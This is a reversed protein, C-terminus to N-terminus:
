ARRLEPTPDDLAVKIEFHRGFFGGTVGGLDKVHGHYKRNPVAIITIAVKDGVAVHGRDLEDMKGGLEWDSFNPIEAIAMGPHVTDGMQYEPLVMGDTLMMPSITKLAVYGAHHARVTMAEINERATKIQAEAKAKGADQIAIGADSTAQRNAVNKELQALHDRASALALDNQKAVIAPLLPNKRVDLEALTVDSKAKKLAYADEEKDADRQAAAQLVHQEAEALDAEAEKLKFVQESTNLQVVIDGAKAQDGSTRLFTIHMDGTGIMPATLTEPNGGRLDAKATISLSLDGRKVKATPMTAAPAATLSRYARVGYFVAAGSAMVLGLSLVLRGAPNKTRRRAPLVRSPVPQLEPESPLVPTSAQSM